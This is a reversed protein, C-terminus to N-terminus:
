AIIDAANKAKAEETIKIKLEIPELRSIFDTVRLMKNDEAKVAADAIDFDADM